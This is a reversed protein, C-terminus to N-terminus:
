REGDETADDGSLSRRKEKVERADELEKGEQGVPWNKQRV